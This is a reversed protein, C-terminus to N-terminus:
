NALILVPIFFLLMAFVRFISAFATFWGHPIAFIFFLWLQRSFFEPRESFYIWYCGNWTGMQPSPFAAFSLIGAPPM